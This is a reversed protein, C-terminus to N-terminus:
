AASLFGFEMIHFLYLFFQRLCVFFQGSVREGPDGVSGPPGQPGASGPLGAPGEPGPPGEILMGPELVAPEGKEGKQARVSAGGEDTVASLAPGFTDETKSEIIPENYDRYSYDYEKTGFDSTIYEETFPEEPTQSVGEGGTKTADVEEAGVTEDVQQYGNTPKKKPIEPSSMTRGSVAAKDFPPFNKSMSKVNNIDLVKTKPPLPLPAHTPKQTKAVKTQVKELVPKTAKPKTPVANAKTKDKAPQPTTESKKAVTVKTVAAKETKVTKAGNGNAKAEGNAKKEVSAKGNGNNNAKGNSGAKAKGNADKGNGNGNSKGNGNGNEKAQGNNKGNSNAKKNDVKPAPTAKPKSAIKSALTPKIKSILIQAAAPKAKPKPTPKTKAPKAPAAKAPATKPKDAKGNNAKGEYSNPDQSQVKPLPSDCDPSYHECFDFAAQPNSAILLQQIEGQFVEADLLRAGFVTIGKTDLVPKNSRALTKTIRNKCDLILTINKKQVSVAIRHWKGDALNVGKFLPYDEPAPKRNQDEYLFIPSRGLELGLQQVGQENYISLLFAQLGAKAKVLTMISFNEPFRGSFLQKTPASIQAKKTIRYAHDPTGSRRSACFGPVKQVGEPLSPLQLARLVDIPDAQALTLCLLLLFSTEMCWPRRKKRIDM